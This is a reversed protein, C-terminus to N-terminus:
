QTILHKVDMTDIEESFVIFLYSEENLTTIHHLTDKDIVFTEGEQYVTGRVDDRIFGTLVQIRELNNPHKHKFLTSNPEYHILFCTRKDSEEMGMSIVGNGFSNPLNVWENKIFEIEQPEPPISHHETDEPSNDEFIIEFNSKIKDVKERVDLFEKHEENNKFLIDFIKM